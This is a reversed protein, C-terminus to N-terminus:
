EIGIIEKIKTESSIYFNMEEFIKDINWNKQNELNRTNIDFKINLIYENLTFFVNYNLFNKDLFNIRVEGQKFETGKFFHKDMIADRENSDIEYKLDVVLGTFEIDEFITMMKRLEALEGLVSIMEKISDISVNIDEYQVRMLNVLIRSGSSVNLGQVGVDPPMVSFFQTFGKNNFKGKLRSVIEEQINKYEIALLVYQYQEAIKM